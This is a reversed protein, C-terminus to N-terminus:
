PRKRAPLEGDAAATAAQENSADHGPSEIKVQREIVASFFTMLDRLTQSPEPQTSTTCFEDALRDHWYRLDDAAKVKPWCAEPVTAWEDPALSSLYYRAIEVLERASQARSVLGLWGIM